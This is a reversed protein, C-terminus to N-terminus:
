NENRPTKIPEFDELNENISFETWIDLEKWSEKLKMVYEFSYIPVDEPINKCNRFQVGYIKHDRILNRKVFEM